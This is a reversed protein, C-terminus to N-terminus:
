EPTRETPDPGPLRALFHMVGNVHEAGEPSVDHLIWWAKGALNAWLEHFLRLVKRRASRCFLDALEDLATATAANPPSSTTDEATAIDDTSM